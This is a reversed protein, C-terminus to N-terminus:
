DVLIAEASCSYSCVVLLMLAFLILESPTPSTNGTNESVVYDGNRDRAKGEGARSREGHIIEGSFASSIPQSGLIVDRAGGGELVDDEMGSVIERTLEKTLAYYARFMRLFDRRDVFGDGNADYGNFTRRRRESFNKKTLSALGKLFEDFSILGDGNTDYFAFMRDYILNPPPPRLSTHPVFCKDFTRRDIALYYQDPDRLWETAALCRFQEWLAEVESSQFGTEECLRAVVDRSLNRHVTSPKGPYWVPQPQRPNGLFPAPIRVKYFLHTKSHIQIAECQECLDYDVCNACRYRIGRIPIMGCGNCTVGRHVYGDKRAQEEAIRYLLNLLSQGQKNAENNGLEGRLSHESEADAVTQEPFRALFAESFQGEVDSDLHDTQLLERLEEVDLLRETNRGPFTSNANEFDTSPSLATARRGRRHSQTGAPSASSRIINHIYYITCGVAVATLAYVAPRYRTLSSTNSSAMSQVHRMASPM